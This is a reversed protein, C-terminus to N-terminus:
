QGGRVPWVYLKTTKAYRAPGPTNFPLSWVRDDGEYTTSSWYSGSKVNTFPDGETWQGTGAANPLAMSRHGYHVLSLLELINPLRWDGAVTGDTLGCAGDALNAAAALAGSWNTFLGSCGADELWILGTLIDAVTGDLLDIFRPSPWPVGRRLAGDDGAHLSNGQGTVPLPAPSGAAGGRVMWVYQANAAHTKDYLYPLGSHLDTCWVLDASAAYSSSTWYTSPPGDLPHINTFPAGDVWQGSGATNPLAPGVFGWHGLSLFESINPIRWSGPTSGDSLGCQGNAMGNAATLASEWSTDPFDFLTGCEPDQMWVLGTLGDTVTGDGNITFRPSPWAVGIELDGDDGPSESVTQGTKPVPATMFGGITLTGGSDVQVESLFSTSPALLLTDSGDGFTVTPGVTITSSALCNTTEGTGFVEGTIVLDVAAPPCVGASASPDDTLGAANIRIATSALFIPLFVLVRRSGIMLGSAM